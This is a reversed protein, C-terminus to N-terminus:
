LPQTTSGCYAVNSDVTMPIGNTISTVCDIDIQNFTCSFADPDGCNDVKQYDYQVFNSSTGNAISITYNTVGSFCGSANADLYVEIAYGLNNNFANGNQDLITATVRGQVYDYNGSSGPNINSECYLTTTSYTPNNTVRIESIDTAILNSKVVLQNSAKSAYPGYGTWINVYTNAESKTICKQSAPISTKATFVGTSVANALNNLTIAQNNALGAWSM